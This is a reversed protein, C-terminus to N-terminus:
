AASPCTISTIIRVPTFLSELVHLDDVKNCNAITSIQGPTLAVDHIKCMVIYTSDLIRDVVVSCHFHCYFKSNNANESIEFRLDLKSFFQFNSISFSLVFRM